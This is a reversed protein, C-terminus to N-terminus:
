FENLNHYVKTEESKHNVTVDDFELGYNKDKVCM